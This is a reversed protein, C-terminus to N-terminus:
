ESTDKGLRVYRGQKSLADVALSARREEKSSRKLRWYQYFGHISGFVLGDSTKEDRVIRGLFFRHSGVKRVTKIEMERVRLAFDPVPINFVTSARIAFPLEQWVFSPKSHNHALQYALAGQSLPISSLAIRGSREVLGGALREARLALGFYGDGLDGLLNMPFINGNERSGVSVLMVPHPRIFEVMMARRELFSMRVGKTNDRKWQQYAFLLYHAALQTKPVCYNTSHCPEFFMFESEEVSFAATCRLRIEGLLRQEDRRSFKFSPHEFGSHDASRGFGVCFTLPAACAVSYGHTIDVATGAGELRVAVETQPDTFGLTFEQPLLREFLRNKIAQRM